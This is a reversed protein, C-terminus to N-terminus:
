DSCFPLLNLSSSRPGCRRRSPEQAAAGRGLVVINRLHTLTNSMGHMQDGFARLSHGIECIKSPVMAFFALFAFFVAFLATFFAALFVFFSALFFYSRRFPNGGARYRRRRRGRDSRGRV